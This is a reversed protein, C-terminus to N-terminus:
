ATQFFGAVALIMWASFGIFLLVLLWAVVRLRSSGILFAALWPLLPAVVYIRGGPSLAAYLAFLLAVFGSVILLKRSDRWIGIVALLPAGLLSLWFVGTLLNTELYEMPAVM